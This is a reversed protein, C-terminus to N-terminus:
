LARLLVDDIQITAASVMNTTASAGFYIDRNGIVSNSVPSSPVIVQKASDFAVVLAFPNTKGDVTVHHWAGIQYIGVNFRDVFTGGDGTPTSLVLGVGPGPGVVVDFDVKAAPGSAAYEFRGVRVTAATDVSGVRFAFSLVFREHTTDVTNKYLIGYSPSNGNAVAKAAHASSNFNTPDITVDGNLKLVSSWGASPDNSTDFDACFIADSPANACQLPPPPKWGGDVPMADSGADLSADAGADLSVDAGADFSAAAGAGRLGDLDVLLSCSLAFAGLGALAIIVARRM